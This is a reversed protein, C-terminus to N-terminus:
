GNRVDWSDTVGVSNEEVMQVSVETWLRKKVIDVATVAVETVDGDPSRYTAHGAEQLDVFDTDSSPDDPFIVGEASFSGQLTPAFTVSQRARASLDWAQYTAKLSYDTYPRDSGRVLYASGGEWSWAHFRKSAADMRTVDTGWRTGDSSASATYVDYEVGFPYPVDFTAKGGSASLLPCEHLRGGYVVWMETSGLDPCTARLVPGDWAFEPEVDETGADHTAQVTATPLNTFTFRACEPTGVTYRVTLTSGDAPVSSLASTPVLVSDSASLNEYERAGCVKESGAYVSDICLRVGGGAYDHSVGLRLGSPGIGAETFEVRPMTYLTLLQDAASGRVSELGDTGISRVQLEHQEGRYQTADYGTGDLPDACWFSTGDRRVTVPKWRTWEGWGTWGSDALRLNRTRHRMEFHNANDAAWASTCTWRAYQDRDVRGSTAYSGRVTSGNEAKTFCLRLTAPVPMSGDIAETPVLVWRQDRLLGGEAVRDEWIKVVSSATANADVTDLVRDGDPGGAILKVLQCQMSDQSVTGFEEVGWLQGANGDSAQWVICVSGNEHVKANAVHLFKASKINRLRFVGDEEQKRFAWKQANSDDRAQLLVRSNNSTGAVGVALRTDMQSLLEYLGNEEFPPVPLFAWRQANTGAEARVCVNDGSAGGEANLCFGGGSDANHLVYTPLSQEKVTMSKGDAVPNWSQEAESRDSWQCVNAGERVSGDVDLSKGTWRNAIRMTGDKRYSVYFVEARSNNADYVRVNTGNAVKANYVNLRLGTGTAPVIQYDGEEIPHDAM